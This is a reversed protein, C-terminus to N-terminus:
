EKDLEMICMLKKYCSAYAFLEGSYNWFIEKNMPTLSDRYKEKNFYAREMEKNIFGLLEVLKDYEISDM